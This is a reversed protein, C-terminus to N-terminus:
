LNSSRNRPYASGINAEGIAMQDELQAVRAIVAKKTQEEAEKKAQLIAQDHEIKAKTCRYRKDVRGPHQDANKARTNPHRTPPNM